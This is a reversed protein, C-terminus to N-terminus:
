NGDAKKYALKFVDKMQDLVTTRAPEKSYEKEVMAIVFQVASDKNPPTEKNVHASIFWSRVKDWNCMQKRGPRKSAESTPPSHEENYVYTGGIRTVSVQGFSALPSIEELYKTNVRLNFYGNDHETENTEWPLSLTIESPPIPKFPVLKSIEAGNLDSIPKSIENWDRWRMGEVQLNGSHIHHHVTGWAKELIRSYTDKKKEVYDWKRGFTELAHGHEEMFKEHNEEFGLSISDRRVNPTEFECGFQSAACHEWVYRACEAYEDDYEIGHLLCEDKSFCDFFKSSIKFNEPMNEPDFRLDVDNNIRPTNKSHIFEPLRGLAIWEVFESLYCHEPIKAAKLYIDGM